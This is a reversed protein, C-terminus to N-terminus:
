ENFPVLPQNKRLNMNIPPILTPINGSHMEVRRAFMLSIIIPRLSVIKEKRHKKNEFLLNSLYKKESRLIDMKRINRNQNISNLLAEEINNRIEKVTLTSNDSDLIQNLLAYGWSRWEQEDKKIEILKGNERNLRDNEITTDKLKSSLQDYKRNLKRLELAFSEFTKTLMETDQLNLKKRLKLSDNIFKADKQRQEVEENIIDIIKNIDEENVNNEFLENLIKILENKCKDITKILKENDLANQTKMSLIIANKKAESELRERKLIDTTTQLKISLNRESLQLKALKHQYDSKIADFKAIEENVKQLQIQNEKNESELKDIKIQYKTSLSDNRKKLDNLINSNVNEVSNLKEKYQKKREESKQVQKQYEEIKNDREYLNLSLEKNSTQLKSLKEILDQKQNQLSENENELKMIQTDKSNIKKQLKDIQIQYEENKQTINEIHQKAKEMEVSNGKKVKEIEKDFSNKIKSVEKCFSKKQNEKNKGSNEIMSTLQEIEYELEDINKNVMQKEAETPIREEFENIFQEVLKPFDNSPDKVYKKFLVILKQNIKEQQKKSNEYEQITQNHEYQMKELRSNIYDSSNSKTMLIRNIQAVCLFLTLLESIPSSNLEEENVIQLFVKAIKEPENIESPKFISPSCIDNSININQEEIFKGIRRCEVLLEDRKNPELLQFSSNGMQKLFLHANELHSLLVKYRNELESIKEKMDKTQEQLNNQKYFEKLIYSLKRIIEAPTLGDFSINQYEDSLTELIEEIALDIDNREKEEDRKIKKVLYDNEKQSNEKNKNIEQITSDLVSLFGSCNNMQNVLDTRQKSLKIIEESQAKFLQEFSSVTEKYIELEENSANNKKENENLKIKESNISKRKEASIEDIKLKLEINETEKENITNGLQNILTKKERLKQKLGDIKQINKEIIEDKNANEKQIMEINDGLKNNEEQLEQIEKDKSQNEKELRKISSNLLEIKTEYLKPLESARNQKNENVNDKDNEMEKQLLEASKREIISKYKNIKNKYKRELKRNLEDAIVNIDNEKQFSLLKRIQTKLREIENNKSKIEKDTNAKDEAIINNQTQIYKAKESITQLSNLTDTLLSTADILSECKKNTKTGVFQLFRCIQSEYNKNLNTLKSIEKKYSENEENLEKNIVNLESESKRIDDIERLYSNKEDEFKHQQLSLRTQLDQIQSKLEIGDSSTPGKQFGSSWNSNSLDNSNLSEIM